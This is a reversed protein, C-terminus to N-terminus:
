FIIKKEKIDEKKAFDLTGITLLLESVKWSREVAVVLTVYDRERM